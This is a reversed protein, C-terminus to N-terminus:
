RRNIIFSSLWASLNSECADVRLNCEASMDEHTLCRSGESQCLNESRKELVSSLPSWTMISNMYSHVIGNFTFVKYIVGAAKNGVHTQRPRRKYSTVALEFACSERTSGHSHLQTKHNSLAEELARKAPKRLLRFRSLSADEWRLECPRFCTLTKWKLNMKHM